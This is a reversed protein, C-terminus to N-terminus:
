KEIILNNEEFYKRCKECVVAHIISGNEEYSVSSKENEHWESSIEHGCSAIIM